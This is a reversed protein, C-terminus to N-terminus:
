PRMGQGPECAGAGLDRRAARAPGTAAPLHRRLDEPEVALGTLLAMQRAGQLLWMEIGGIVRAGGRAARALLPTAQASLVMDLVTRGTWDVEAPMPDGSGDAGCATAQVLLDFASRGREAWPVAEAGLEEGLVGCQAASRGSVGVACGLGQLAVIAARAAGGTGLVLASGGRHPGLLTRVADVDTNLGIRAGGRLLVTNVAGVRDAPPVLADLVACLARKAPMTVSVGDFGLEELVALTEVPLATVVPLYIFPAGREAFLRNYVTPGPSSAVQPGGVLGLPSLGRSRDLRWELAQSVTLQGPATAPAGDAAVYAWASHFRDPLLRSALGSVGMGVRVVPRTEHGLARRLPRLEAADGAEVAVKLVDAPESSLARAIEALRVGGPGVAGDPGAAWEHHSLVLRTPGRRAYLSRRLEADSALELDLYGPARALARSLLEFRQQESGGFGGRESRPRCTVVRDHGRVLELVEDDVRELSDLRVEQLAFHRHQQLRAALARAQLEGGTVCLLAAPLGVEPAGIAAATAPAAPRSM